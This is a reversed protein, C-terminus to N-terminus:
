TMAATRRKSAHRASDRRATAGRRRRPPKGRCNPPTDDLRSWSLPSPRREASHPRLPLAQHVREGQHHGRRTRQINRRRGGRPAGQGQAPGAVRPQQPGHSGRVELKSRAEGPRGHQRQSGNPKGHSAAHQRLFEAGNALARLHTGELKWGGVGSRQRHAVGTLHIDRLPAHPAMAICRSGQSQLM